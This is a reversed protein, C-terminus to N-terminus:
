ARRHMGRFGHRMGRERSALLRDAVAQQETSLAAYLPKSVALFENTRTAAAALFQQQRELRAIANPQPANRRESMQAHFQQMQQDRQTAQKRQVDAFANWQPLQADTIKLATKIYALRAEVREGPMRFAHHQHHEMGPRVQPGPTANTTQAVALSAAGAILGVSLMTNAILRNM